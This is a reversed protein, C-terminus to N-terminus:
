RDDVELFKSGIVEAFYAKPVHKARQIFMDQILVDVSAVPIVFKDQFYEILGGMISGGGCIYLKEVKQRNNRNSFYDLVRNIEFIWKDVYAIVDERCEADLEEFFNTEMKYQEAILLDVDENDQALIADIGNSGGKVVKNIFYQNQYFMNISLNRAGINIFGYNDEQALGQAKANKFLKELANEAVEVRTVKLGIKKLAEIIPVLRTKVIAVVMVKLQMTDDIEIVEQVKFDISFRESDVPLYGSIESVVNEYIQQDNMYPLQMSRIISSANDMCLVCKSGNIKGKKKAKKLTTSLLPISDSLDQMSLGEPMTEVQARKIKGGSIQVMKLMKTGFHVYVGDNSKLAM